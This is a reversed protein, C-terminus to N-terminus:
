RGGVAEEAEELAGRVGQVGQEKREQVHRSWTQRPSRTVAIEEKQFM